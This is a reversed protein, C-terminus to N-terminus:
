KWKEFNEWQHNVFNVFKPDLDIKKPEFNYENILIRTINLNLITLLLFTSEIFSENRSEYLITMGLGHTYTSYHNQIIKSFKEPIRAINYLDEWSLRDKKNEITFKWNKKDITKSSVMEDLKETKIRNMLNKIARKDHEIIDESQQFDKILSNNQVQESFDAISSIRGELSDILYLYYRLEQEKLSSNTSILYLISYNDIIMRSLTAFPQTACKKSNIDKLLNLNSLINKFIKFIGIGRNLISANAPYNRDLILEVKELEKLSSEYSPFEM